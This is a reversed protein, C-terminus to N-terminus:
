GVQPPALARIRPFLVTPTATFAGAYGDDDPGLPGRQTAEFYGAVDAIITERHNAPLAAVTYTISVNRTGRTFFGATGYGWYVIGNDVTLDAVDIVTGDSYVAETIETVNPARLVLRDSGGSLVEMVEGVPGVWEAYEALAADIMDRIEDDDVTLTKNLRARV